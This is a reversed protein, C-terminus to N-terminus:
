LFKKYFASHPATEPLNAFEFLCWGHFPQTTDKLVRNLIEKMEIEFLIQTYKEMNIEQPIKDPDTAIFITNGSFFAKLAQDYQLQDKRKQVWAAELNVRFIPVHNPDAHVFQYKQFFEVEEKLMKRAARYGEHNEKQHQVSEIFSSRIVAAMPDDEALEGNTPHRPASAPDTRKLDACLRRIKEVQENAYVKDINVRMAFFEAVACLVIGSLLPLPHTSRFSKWGGAGLAIVGALRSTSAIFHLSKALSRWIEENHTHQNLIEQSYGALRCIWSTM